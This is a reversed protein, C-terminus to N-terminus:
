MPINQGDDEHCRPRRDAEGDESLQEPLSDQWEWEWCFFHPPNLVQSSANATVGSNMDLPHTYKSEGDSLFYGNNIGSSSKAAIDINWESFL